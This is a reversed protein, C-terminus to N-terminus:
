PFLYIIDFQDTRQGALTKPLVGTKLAFASFAFEHEGIDRRATRIYKGFQIVRLMPRNKMAYRDGTIM